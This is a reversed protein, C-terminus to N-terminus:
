TQYNSSSLPKGAYYTIISYKKTIGVIHASTNELLEVKTVCYKNNHSSSKFLFKYLLRKDIDQKMPRKGM